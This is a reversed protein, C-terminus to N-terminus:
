LTSTPSTAPPFSPLLTRRQSLRRLSDSLCTTQEALSDIWDEYGCRSAMAVLLLRGIWWLRHHCPARGLGRGAPSQKSLDESRAPRRCLLVSGLGTLLIAAMDGRLHPM